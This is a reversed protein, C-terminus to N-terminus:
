ISTDKNKYIMVMTAGVVLWFLIIMGPVEFINEFFCHLTVGFLGSFIALLLDGLPTKSKLKYNKFISSLSVYLLLIFSTLGLIGSEVATKLFYNDMYFATPFYYPYHAAVAGGFHGLGVGFLFHSKFLSYGEIWRLMRGATLSSVIYEPSMMYLIRSSITPVFLVFLIGLAAIPIILKKNKFLIFIFIAISFGIWAGRSLTTVLCLVMILFTLLYLIKNLKNKEYFFLGLSVMSSLIMISGLINPSQVFSFARTSIGHEASDIWGVPMEVGTVYQFIGYLAVLVSSIVVFTLVKKAGKENKVLSFVLFFWLLNTTIARFGELGVEIYTTNVLLIFLNILIFVIMPIDIPTFIHNKERIDFLYKIIFIILAGILFLEDWISSILTISLINRIFYDIIFFFALIYIVRAYDTIFFLITIFALIGILSILPNIFVGLIGILFSIASLIIQTKKNM